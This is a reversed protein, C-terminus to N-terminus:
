LHSSKIKYKNTEGSVPELWQSCNGCLRKVMGGPHYFSSFVMDIPKLNKNLAMNLAGVEACNFISWEEDKVVGNLIKYVNENLNPHFGNLGKAVIINDIKIHCMTNTEETTKVKVKKKKTKPFQEEIFEEITKEDIIEGTKNKIILSLGKTPFRRGVELAIEKWAPIKEEKKEEKKVTKERVESALQIIKCSKFGAPRLIKGIGTLRMGMRDAEAELDPSYVATVGEKYPNIVRGEKQQIVHTLEHGLLMQGQPSYPNYRGRAFYVNNGNTFALAGLLEAEGNGEHIEVDSLGTEFLAECLQLVNDTFSFGDDSFNLRSINLPYAKINNGAPAGPVKMSESNSCSQKQQIILNNPHRLLAQLTRGSESLSLYDSRGDLLVSSHPRGGPFFGQIILSSKNMM